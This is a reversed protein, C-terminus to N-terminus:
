NRGFELCAEQAYLLNEYPTRISTNCASSYVFRHFPRLRSFLMKVHERIRKKAGEPEELEHCTMGGWVIHRDYPITDRFEPLDIDGLPAHPAGELGDLQVKAVHAKLASVSGCAHAYFFKGAEHLITGIRSYHDSCFRDFFTPSFFKSDLNDMSIMGFADSAAFERAFVTCKETHMEMLERVPAEDDFCWLLANQAGALNILKKLPTEQAYAIVLGDEGVRQEAERYREADFHYDGHEVWYKVAPLDRKFDKWFYDREYCTHSEPQFVSDSTLTGHPTCVRTRTGEPGSPDIERLPTREIKLGDGLVRRTADSVRRSFIDCGMKKMADVENECGSLDTPLTGRAKHATFWQGINPSFPVRDPIEGNVVALLRERGTM